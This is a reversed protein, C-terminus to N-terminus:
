TWRRATPVKMDRVTENFVSQGLSNVVEVTVDGKNDNTFGVVFRGNSPNPQILISGGKGLGGTGQSSGPMIPAVWRLISILM